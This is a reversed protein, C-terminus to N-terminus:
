LVQGTPEDDWAIELMTRPAAATRRDNGPTMYHRGSARDNSVYFDCGGCHFEILTRRESRYVENRNGCWPCGQHAERYCRDAEEFWEAFSREAQLM